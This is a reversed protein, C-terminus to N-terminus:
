PVVAVRVRARVFRRKKEIFWPDFGAKELEARVRYVLVHLRNDETAGRGWVGTRIDDDDCWGVDDLRVGNARDTVVQRALLYLMVARNETDVVYTLGTSEDTLTATPGLPGDLRAELRYGYRDGVPVATTHADAASERVVFERGRVDFPEGIAVPRETESMGLWIEHGPHVMLVAAIPPADPLLVDSTPSSGIYFRDGVIGVSIGATVDEVCLSAGLPAEDSGERQIEVRTDPGLGVVDGPGVRAAGTLREGNVFTGNRSGLDRVVLADGEISVVTHHQSVMPDALRLDNGPGRGIHTTTARIKHIWPGGSGRRIHLTFM